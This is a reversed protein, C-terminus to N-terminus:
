QSRAHQMKSPKENKRLVASIMLKLNISMAINALPVKAIARLLALLEPVLESDMRKIAHLQYLSSKTGYNLAGQPASFSKFRYISARPLHNSTAVVRIKM